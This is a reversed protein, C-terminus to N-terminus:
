HYLTVAVHVSSGVLPKPHAFIEYQVVAASPTPALQLGVTVYVPLTCNVEDLVIQAFDVSFQGNNAGIDIIDFGNADINNMTFFEFMYDHYQWGEILSSTIANDKPFLAYKLNHKIFPQFFDKKSFQYINTTFRRKM